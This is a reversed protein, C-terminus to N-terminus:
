DYYEIASGAFSSLAVRRMPTRNDVGPVGPTDATPAVLTNQM